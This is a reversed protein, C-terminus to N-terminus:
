RQPIENHLFVQAVQLLHLNGKVYLKAWQLISLVNKPQCPAYALSGLLKKSIDTASHKCIKSLMDQIGGMMIHNVTCFSTQEKEAVAVLSM